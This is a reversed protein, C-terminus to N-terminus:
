VEITGEMMRVASGTVKVAAPAGPPGLVEV